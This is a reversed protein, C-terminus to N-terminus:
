VSWYVLATHLVALTQDSTHIASSSHLSVAYVCLLVTQMIIFSFHPLIINIKDVTSDSSNLHNFNFAM